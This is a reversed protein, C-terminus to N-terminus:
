LNVHQFGLEKVDDELTTINRKLPEPIRGVFPLVAMNRATKIAKVVRRQDTVSLMNNGRNKIAGNNNTFQRLLEVNRWHIDYFKM